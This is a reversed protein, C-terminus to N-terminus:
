GLGSMEAVAKELWNTMGMDRYMTTATALRERAQECRDTRLYLKGLGLHCHAVLPRMGLQTALTLAERFAGEASAFDPPGGHAGIEGLLRLAWAEYGRQRRGRALALAIHTRDHAEVFRAELMLVEGLWAGFLPDFGSVHREASGALAEQLLSRARAMHGSLAEAYGLMALGMSQTVGLDEARSLEFLREGWARAHDFDGKWLYTFLAARLAYGLDLRRGATEALWRATDACNMADAFFGQEALGPALYVRSLVAPPVALGFRERARDGDLMGATRALHETAARYEGLEQLTMGLHLRAAVELGLDKLEEGIALARGALEVAEDLEGAARRSNSMFDFVRGLRRRDGLALALAEAKRLHELVGRYGSATHTIAHRLEFRLDIGQEMTRPSQPLRGLAELAEEIRGAAEHNASRDFAKAGAERCYTVAREWVEGRLAHHALAEIHEALRDAHLREIAGVIQAHLDRRREALLSGYAVEHTLAHTFIYKPEPFLGAEYLFEADHLRTLAARLVPAPTSAIAELLGLPVEKGIVAASQLLRKDEPLLRDIRAALVARVTAPIHIAELRQALRYDGRQGVLVDNEVLARVSEELFLPNGETRQVLLRKLPGLSADMGLLGRLLEDASEPLMSDIRLQAYYMKSAWNHRYEPRYNVILLVRAAPLAAVLADLVAQSEADVWHLDEFVLVLPQVTSERLVLRRLADVTQQRREPPDLTQWRSDEMPVDLLALIAEHAPGLAEDLTLLKGTVKERIQRPDDRSELRFYTRLLDILPLYPTAKGYSVSGSELVLWGYTRHSRTFEWVLRSKGVGPEGVVAVVQGSGDGARKLASQLHDLEADRGVFLGLGRGSAAELRTRAPGPGLLVYVEVPEPLGKVPVPGLPQV